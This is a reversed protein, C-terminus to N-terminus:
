DKSKLKKGPKTGIKFSLSQFERNEICCTKGKGFFASPSYAILFDDLNKGDMQEVIPRSYTKNFTWENLYGMGNSDVTLVNGKEKSLVLTIEGNYGNPVKIKLTPSYLQYHFAIFSLTTLILFTTMWAMKKFILKAISAVLLCGIMIGLLVIGGLFTGSLIMGGPVNSLKIILTLLLTVSLVTLLIKLKRNTMKFDIPM